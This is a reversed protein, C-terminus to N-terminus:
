EDISHGKEELKAAALYALALDINDGGLLLHSGVAQRELSLNGNDNTVGILSFDTTGGGIDVVLILDGEKLINRWSDHHHHLWAYFAAQPEELLIVEPYGAIQAAEQVLQRASPDFSAPM